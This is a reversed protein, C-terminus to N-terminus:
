SVFIMHLDECDNYIAGLSYLSLLPKDFTIFSYCFVSCHLIYVKEKENYGFPDHWCKLPTTWFFIFSYHGKESELKTISPPQLKPQM